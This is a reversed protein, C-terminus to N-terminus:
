AAFLAGDSPRFALTQVQKGLSAVRTMAGSAVDFKVLVSQNSIGYLSGNTPCWAIDNISAAGISAINTFNGSSLDITGFSNAPLGYKVAYVANSQAPAPMAALAAAAFLPLLLTKNM